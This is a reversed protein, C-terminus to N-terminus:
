FEFNLPRKFNLVQFGSSMLLVNSRNGFMGLGSTYSIAGLWQRAYGFIGIRPMRVAAV